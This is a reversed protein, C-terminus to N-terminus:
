EKTEEIMNDDRYDKRSRKEQEDQYNEDGDAPASAPMDMFNADDTDDGADDDGDIKRFDGSEESNAYAGGWPTPIKKNKDDLSNMAFPNKFTKFIYYM